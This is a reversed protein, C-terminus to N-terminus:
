RVQLLHAIEDSSIFNRIYVILPDRSFIQVQYQQEDPNLNPTYISSIGDRIAHGVATTLTGFDPLTPGTFAFLGGAVAVLIFLARSFNPATLSSM